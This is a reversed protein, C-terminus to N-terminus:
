IKILKKVKRQYTRSRIEIKLRAARSKDKQLHEDYLTLMYATSLNRNQNWTYLLWNMVQPHWYKEPISATRLTMAHRLALKSLERLEERNKKDKFLITSKTVLEYLKGAEKWYTLFTPYADEGTETNKMNHLDYTQMVRTNGSIERDYEKRSEPNSLVTYAELIEQMKETTDIGNRINADPHYIKALKNKAEAIEEFTAKNTVGLIEYYNMTGCSGGRINTTM